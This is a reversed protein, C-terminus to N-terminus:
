KKLPYLKRDESQHHEKTKSDPNNHIKNDSIKDEKM